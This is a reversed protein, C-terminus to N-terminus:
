PAAKFVFLAAIVRVGEEQSLTMRERSSTAVMLIEHLSREYIDLIESLGQVDLVRPIRAEFHEGAGFTGCTIAASADVLTLKLAELSIKRMQETSLAQSQDTSILPLRESRFCREIVGRRREEGAIRVLGKDILRNLHYRVKRQPEGLKDAIENITEAENAAALAALIKGKFPHAMAEALDSLKELDRPDEQHAADAM